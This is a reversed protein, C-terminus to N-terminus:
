QTPTTNGSSAKHLRPRPVLKLGISSPDSSSIIKDTNSIISLEKVGRTNLKQLYHQLRKEDTFGSGTVEEVGVQIAKTLEATQKEFEHYMAQETQTYLVIYVCMLSLSLLLMMLTLKKNLSMKLFFDNM